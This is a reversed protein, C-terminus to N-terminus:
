VKNLELKDIIIPTILDWAKESPHKDTKSITYEDNNHLDISTIDNNIRYVTFNNQELKKKLLDSYSVYYYFIVVFKVKTNWHKELENRTEIFYLLVEDTIEDENKPNHIYSEIYKEKLFKITYSSRLINIIPNKYNLPLLKNNKKEYNGLQYTDLIHLYNKKMRRYHDDVMIYFITDSPPVDTYFQKSKSQLLMHQLGKGPIARNYVPRKLSHALKYSFTQNYNLYLGHAFSCGFLTIPTKDSYEIGDPKRGSYINDNGNFIKKLNFSFNPKIQYNFKSINYVRSNTKYFVAANYKYIIFDSTFLLLLSVLINISIIILFKLFKNM